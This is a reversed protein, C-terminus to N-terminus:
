GYISYNARLFKRLKLGSALWQVGDIEGNKRGKEYETIGLWVEDPECLNVCDVAVNRWMGLGILEQALPAITEPEYKPIKSHTTHEVVVPEINNNVTEQNIDKLATEKLRDSQGTNGSERVPSISETVQIESERVPVSEEIGSERVAILIPENVTYITIRGRKGKSLYGNDVFLELKRRVTREGIGLSKAITSKMASCEGREMQCYREVRGFVLAAHVGFEALLDDRVKTFNENM